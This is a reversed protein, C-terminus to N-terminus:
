GFLRTLREGGDQRAQIALVPIRIGIATKKLRGHRGIRSAEGKAVKELTMFVLDRFPGRRGGLEKSRFCFNQHDDLTKCLSPRQSTLGRNSCGLPQTM